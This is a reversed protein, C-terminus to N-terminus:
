NFITEYLEFCTMQPSKFFLGCYLVFLLSYPLSILKIKIITQELYVVKKKTNPTLPRLGLVRRIIFLKKQEVTEIEIVQKYLPFGTQTNTEFIIM